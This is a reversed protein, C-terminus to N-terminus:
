LFLVKRTQIVSTTIGFISMIVIAICYYYYNEALWVAITFLQFMYFPNFFELLLLTMISQIPVEIENIGYARQRFLLFNYLM